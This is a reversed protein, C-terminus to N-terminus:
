LAIGIPEGRLAHYGCDYEDSYSSDEEQGVEM